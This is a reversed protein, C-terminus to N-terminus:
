DGTVRAADKSSGRPPSGSPPGSVMAIRYGSRGLSGGGAGWGGIMASVVLSALVIAATLPGWLVLVVASLGLLVTAGYVWWAVQRDSLGAGLLRHPLHDKGTSTVIELPNTLGKRYRLLHVLLFDCTPIALILMPAVLEAPSSKPIAMTASLGALLFGVMLSGADGLFIRAPPFNYRLFGLAAGALAVAAAAVAWRHALVAVLTLALGGIAASGATVGDTCDLCNVANAVGVIWLVALIEGSFPWPLAVRFGGLWVIAVVVASEVALKWAGANRLDDILGILAFVAAGGLLLTTQEGLTPRLFVLITIAFALYVAIGGLLPTPRGHV